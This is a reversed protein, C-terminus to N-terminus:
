FKFPWKLVRWTTKLMATLRPENERSNPRAEGRRANEPKRVTAIGSRTRDSRTQHLRAMAHRRPIAPSSRALKQSNSTTNRASDLPEKVQAPSPLSPKVKVVSAPQRTADYYAALFASSVVAILMLTAWVVPSNLIRRFRSPRPSAKVRVLSRPEEDKILETGDFDCVRHFDPFSFNCAPCHKM